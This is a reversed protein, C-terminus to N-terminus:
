RGELKRVIEAAADLEDRVRPNSKTELAKRYADLAKADDKLRTRYFDGLRKWAVALVSDGPTYGLQDGKDVMTRLDAEAATLDGLEGYAIGRYHLADAMVMEDEPCTWSTHPVRGGMAQNSFADVLEAFKKREVLIAMQRRVALPELPISKALDMARKYDKLCVACQAARDLVDAKLRDAMPTKAALRAYADLAEGDKGAKVLAEAAHLKGAVEEAWRKDYPWGSFFHFERFAEPQLGIGRRVVEPNTAFLGDFDKNEIQQWGQRFGLAGPMHPNAVLSDSEGRAERYEVLTMGGRNMSFLKRDHESQRVYFCNNNGSRGISVFPIHVKHRTNEGFVCNAVSFPEDAGNFVLIHFILPSIFVCNEVRMGACHFFMTAEMSHMFVCNRAVLNPCGSAM